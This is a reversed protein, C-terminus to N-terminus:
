ASVAVSAAAGQANFQQVGTLCNGGTPIIDVVGVTTDGDNATGTLVGVGAIFLINFTVTGNEGGDLSVATTSTVTSTGSVNGTGCAISSYSGSSVIVCLGAEADTDGGDANVAVSAGACAISSFAFTGSGGTLPVPPNLSGTAGAFVTSDVDLSQASAPLISLGSICIIGGAISLIKGKLNM